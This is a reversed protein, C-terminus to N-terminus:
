KGADPLRRLVREKGSLSSRLVMINRDAAVVTDIDERRNAPLAPQSYLYTWQLRHGDRRWVGTAELVTQEGARVLTAFSLDAELEVRAVMARGDPLKDQTTWTGVFEDESRPTRDGARGAKPLGATRMLNLAEDFARGVAAPAVVSVTAVFSAQGDTLLHVLLTTDARDPDTSKKIYTVVTGALGDSARYTQSRGTELSGWDARLDRAMGAHYAQANTHGPPLRDFAIFYQLRDGAWGAIVKEKEDYSPITQYTLDYAEPPELQLGSPLTLAQAAAATFALLCAALIARFPKM